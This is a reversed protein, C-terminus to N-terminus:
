GNKIEKGILREIEKEIGSRDLPYKGWERATRVMTRINEDPTDRAVQDATALVFGGSEGADLICQLCAKKVDDPTGRLLTEFTNINGELCFKDGFEEKVKKLSVDGGPPPELPNMINLDTEEYLMKVVEYSRGCMHLRTLIGARKCLRTVEKIVPLNYERFLTPSLVSLSSASANMKLVDPKAEVRMRFWELEKEIFFDFIEHMRVKEDILDPIVEAYGGHRYGFWIDIPLDVARDVVPGRDWMLEDRLLPNVKYEHEIDLMWKLKPWDEDVNKIMKQKPRPVDYRPYEIVETLRGYPTDVWSTKTHAEDAKEIEFRWEPRNDLPKREVTNVSWRPDHKYKPVVRRYMLEDMSVKGYLYIDWWPLGSEKAPIMNSFDPRVPVVDPEEKRYAALFRERSTM